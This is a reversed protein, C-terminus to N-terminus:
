ASRSKRGNLVAGIFTYRVLWEYSALLLAMTVTTVIAWKALGPLPWDKMWFQLVLIPTLSMLYCWYASDALWRVRASHGSFIRLFAGWLGVIMLWTYLASAAHAALRFAFAEDPSAKAGAVMLFILIPFAALNAIILHLGWDRGFWVVLDRHRFLMWGFGFFWFYYVLIHWAPSWGKPTDVIWEEMQLMFPYTLIALPVVRLRSALTSRFAADIRGLLRTGSLRRGLPALLVIAVLFILLFYLFWLHFLPLRFLWSGEAVFGTVVETSSAEPNANVLKAALERVESAKGRVEPTRVNEVEAYLLVALVTPVIFLLSLALPIGVRKLRHEAMGALGYRLFLLCGFFGALLFFLQMRFDHVAIVFLDAPLAPESDRVPWFDPPQVLFSLAAHLVVGLFMAFARLSDLAHYREVPVPATM